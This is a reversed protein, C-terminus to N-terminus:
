KILQIKWQQGLSNTKDNPKIIAGNQTDNNILDIFKGKENEILFYDEEIYIFKFKQYNDGKERM